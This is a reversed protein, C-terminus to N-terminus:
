EKGLLSIPIEKHESPLSARETNTLRPSRGAFAGVVGLTGTVLDSALIM